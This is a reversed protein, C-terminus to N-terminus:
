FSLCVNVIGQNGFDRKVPVFIQTAGAASETIVQSPLITGDFRFLGRPHGKKQVIISVNTFAHDLAARGTASYVQLIFSEEPEQPGKLFSFISNFTSYNNRLPLSSPGSSSNSRSSDRPTAGNTSM